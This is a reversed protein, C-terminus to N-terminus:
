NFFKTYREMQKHREIKQVLINYNECYLGKADM